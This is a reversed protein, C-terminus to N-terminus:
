VHFSQSYWCLMIQYLELLHSSPAFFVPFREGRRYVPDGPTLIWQVACFSLRLLVDEESGCERIGEADVVTDPAYAHMTYLITRSTKTAVIVINIDLVPQQARVVCEASRIKEGKIKMTVGNPSVM